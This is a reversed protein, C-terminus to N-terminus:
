SRFPPPVCVLPPPSGSQWNPFFASVPPTARGVHFLGGPSVPPSFEPPSLTAPPLSEFPTESPPKPLPFTYVLFFPFCTFTFFFLLFFELPPSPPNVWFELFRSWTLSDGAFLRCSPVPSPWLDGQLNWCLLTLVQKTWFPPVVPISPPTRPPIPSSVFFTSCPPLRM